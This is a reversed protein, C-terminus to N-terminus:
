RYKSANQLKHSIGQLEFMLKLGPFTVKSFLITTSRGGFLIGLFVRNYTLKENSVILSCEISPSRIYNM